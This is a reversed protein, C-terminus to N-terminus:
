DRRSRLVAPTPMVSVSQVYGYAGIQRTASPQAWVGLRMPGAVDLLGAHATPVASQFSAVLNGSVDIGQDTLPGFYIGGQLLRSGVIADTKYRFKAMTARSTKSAVDTGTESWVTSISERAELAGTEVNFVDVDPTMSAVMPSPLYANLDTYMSELQDSFDDIAAQGPAQQGVDLGYFTNIGPAGQFGTLRVVFRAISAM